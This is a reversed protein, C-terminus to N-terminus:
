IIWALIIWALLSSILEDEVRYLNGNKLDYHALSGFITVIGEKDFRGMHLDVFFVLRFFGLMGASLQKGHAM